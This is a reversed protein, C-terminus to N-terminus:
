FDSPGMNSLGGSHGASPVSTELFVAFHSFPVFVGGKGTRKGTKSCRNWPELNDTGKVNKESWKGYLIGDRVM